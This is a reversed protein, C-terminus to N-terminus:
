LVPWRPHHELGAREWVAKARERAQSLVREEDLTLVKRGEV